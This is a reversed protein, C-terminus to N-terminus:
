NKGGWIRSVPPDSQVMVWDASSIRRCVAQLVCDEFTRSFLVGCHDALTRLLPGCIDATITRSHGRYHDAFTLPFTRSVSHGSPFIRLPGRLITRSHGLVDALITRSHGCIDVSFDAFTRSHGRPFDAFTRSFLDAFTRPSYDAFTRSHGRSLGRIDAPFPGRVDAFTWPFLGRIDATVTRSRGRLITRSHGRIDAPFTRPSLGRVDAASLGLIDAFMRPTCDSASM